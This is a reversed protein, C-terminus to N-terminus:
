FAEGKIDQQRELSTRSHFAQAQPIVLDGLESRHSIRRGESSHVLLDSNFFGGKSSSNSTVDQM